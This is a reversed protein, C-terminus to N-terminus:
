VIVKDSFLNERSAITIVPIHYFDSVYSIATLTLDNGDLTQSAIIAKCHSLNGIECLKTTILLPNSDLVFSQSSLYIKQNSSIQYSRNAHENLIKFHRDNSLAGILTIRPYSFNYLDITKNSFNHVLNATQIKIFALKVVFIFFYRYFIM